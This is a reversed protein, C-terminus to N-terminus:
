DKTRHGFDRTKRGEDKTRPRKSSSRLYKIFGGILGKVEAAKQYLNNFQEQNLYEQDLAVYLHSQLESASRQSYSLFSIFQADTNSDFGEAINAMISISARRVQDMLAYDKNFPYSKTISYIQKTLDRSEQWAKIDEFRGIKM